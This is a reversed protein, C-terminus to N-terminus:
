SQVLTYIWERDEKNFIATIQIKKNETKINWTKNIGDKKPLTFSHFIINLYKFDTESVPDYRIEKNILLTCLAEVGRLTTDDGRMLYNLRVVDFGSIDRVETILRLFDPSEIILEIFQRYGYDSIKCKAPELPPFIMKIKNKINNAIYRKWQKKNGSDVLKDIDKLQPRAKQHRKPKKPTKKRKTKPESDMANEILLNIDEAKLKEENTMITLIAERLGCFETVKQTKVALEKENMRDIMEIKRELENIKTKKVLKRLSKKKIQIKEHTLKKVRKNRKTVDRDSRKIIVAATEM